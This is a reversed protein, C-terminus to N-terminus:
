YNYEVDDYIKYCIILFHKLLFPYFNFNRKWDNDLSYPTFFNMIMLEDHLLTYFRDPSVKNLLNKSSEEREWSHFWPFISNLTSLVFTLTMSESIKDRLQHYFM